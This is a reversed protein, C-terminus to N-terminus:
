KTDTPLLVGNSCPQRAQLNASIVDSIEQIPGTGSQDPLTIAIRVSRDAAIYTTDPSGDSDLQLWAVGDVQTLAASCNLEQPTEVGCRLLIVPDGWAAVGENDGGEVARQKSGSLDEPLKPMLVKCAATDAGPHGFAPVPVPGTAVIPHANKIVGLTVAAGIALVVVVLASVVQWSLGSRGSPSGLEGPPDTKTSSQM